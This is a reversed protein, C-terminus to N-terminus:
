LTSMDLELRWGERDCQAGKSYFTDEGTQKFGKKELVRGSAPNDKAYGAHLVGTFGAVKLHNLIWDVARTAIGQGQVDPHVAYGLELGGTTNVFLGITGAIEGGLWILYDHALPALQMRELMVQYREEAMELTYPYPFSGTNRAANPNNMVSQFAAADWKETISIVEFSM